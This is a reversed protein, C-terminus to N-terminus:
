QRSARNAGPAGAANAAGAAGLGTQRVRRIRDLKKDVEVERLLVLSQKTAKFVQNNTQDNNLKHFMCGIKSSYKWGDPGATVREVAELFSQQLPALDRRRAPAGDHDRERGEDDDRRFANPVM